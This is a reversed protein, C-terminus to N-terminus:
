PKAFVTALYKDRFSGFGSTVATEYVQKPTLQEPPVGKLKPPRWAAAKFSLESRKGPIKFTTWFNLAIGVYVCRPEESLYLGSLTARHEIFLTPVKVKPLPETGTKVPPGVVFSLVDKPFAAQWRKAIEEGLKKERPRAHDDEFYQSPLAPTGTYYPNHRVRLDSRDAVPTPRRRFRIQVEPGKRQAFAVLRKVFRVLEEDGAAAGAKFRDVAKQYAAQIATDVEVQVLRHHASREVFQRLATVSGAKKIQALEALMAERLSAQVEGQIRSKPYREMFQMIADVTGAKRAVVLEARPLLVEKLEIRDGGAALYARYGEVTNEVKAADALRRESLVNRARWLIWGFAVGVGLAIAIAWRSWWPVMRRLPDEPMLPSPIGSDQLPDLLALDHDNREAEAKRLKEQATLISRQAVELRDGAGVLFEFSAGGKFTLRVRGARALLGLNSMETLPYVRLKNSRADVVGVPFLYQGLRYPLERRYKGVVSARIGCFTIAALIGV